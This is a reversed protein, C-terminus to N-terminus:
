EVTGGLVPTGITPQVAIINGIIDEDSSLSVEMRKKDNVNGTM